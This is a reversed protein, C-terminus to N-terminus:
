ERGAFVFGAWHYPNPDSAIADLKAHRLAARKSKGGALHGYFGAMLETTKSSPVSWLSTISSHAGAAEIARRLSAM